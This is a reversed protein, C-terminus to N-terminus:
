FIKVELQHNPSANTSQTYDTYRQDKELKKKFVTRPRSTQLMAVKDRIARIQLEM